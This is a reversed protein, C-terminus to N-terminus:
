AGRATGCRAAAILPGIRHWDERGHEDILGNEVAWEHRADSWARHAAIHALLHLNEEVTPRMNISAQQTAFDRDEATPTWTWWTPHRRDLLEPPVPVAVAPGAIARRKM